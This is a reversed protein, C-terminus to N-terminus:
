RWWRLQKDRAASVQLEGTALWSFSIAGQEGTNWMKSGVQRYRDVVTSHPHGFQHRYGASFVVHQPALRRVFTDTSSTKSGHHPALLLDLPIDELALLKLL